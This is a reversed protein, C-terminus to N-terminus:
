EARRATLHTVRQCEKDKIFRPITYESLRAVLMRRSIGLLKAAVSQNGSCRDWPPSPERALSRTACRVEDRIGRSRPAGDCSAPLVVARHDAAGRARTPSASSRPRRLPGPGGRVRVPRVPACDLRGTASSWPQARPDDSGSVLTKASRVSPENTARAAVALLHAKCRRGLNDRIRANRQAPWATVADTGPPPRSSAAPRAALAAM